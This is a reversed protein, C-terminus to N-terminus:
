KRGTIRQFGHAIKKEARYALIRADNFREKYQPMVPNEADLKQSMFDYYEKHLWHTGDERVRDRIEAYTTDCFEPICGVTLLSHGNFCHPLACKGYPYYVIPKDIDEFINQSFKTCYCQATYGTALDVDISRAGAYCFEERKKGFITMKFNWFGSNFTEWTNRYAEESLKTLKVINETGDDRAITLLPLAGFHKMSFEKVEEIYPILEDSPTVEINISVGARWCKNVNEAFRDLLNLKKLELFHFSCKFGLHALLSADWGCIRDLVKSVTMNSVVECYHGEKLLAYIYKDIDTALLTEGAACINIYACGGLRVKSLAKAVHEPSYRYSIQEGRCYNNRKPLYCYHCQLNCITMPVQLLVMRKMKDM